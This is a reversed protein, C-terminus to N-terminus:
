RRIFRWPPVTMQTPGLHAEDLCGPFDLGVMSVLMVNEFNNERGLWADHFAAVM